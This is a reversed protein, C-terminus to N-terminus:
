DPFDCANDKLTPNHDSYRPFELLDVSRNLHTPSKGTLLGM